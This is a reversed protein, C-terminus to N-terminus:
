LNYIKGSKVLKIFNKRGESNTLMTEVINRYVTAGESKKRALLEELYIKQAPISWRDIIEAAKLLELFIEQEQKSKKNTNKM